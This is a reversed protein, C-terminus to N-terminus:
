AFPALDHATYTLHLVEARIFDAIKTKGLTQEFQEPKILPLQEVIYWNMSTSQTKQRTVFDFVFANLNTLLLPAFKVYEANSVTLEPMLLPLKNGAAVAPSITAIITSADTARAIDRFGIVWDRKDKQPIDSTAVWYQPTPHFDPKTKEADTTFDSNTAVKLNEDNTTVSAARHDYHYIMRGLYLPVAESEGKKWRNAGVPYCGQTQLDHQRMFLHSDNTMHFLTAYRVPWVKKQETRVSSTSARKAQGEVPEPRVTNLSLVPQRRYIATSIEADRANRFIPAAGTNPNVASFDAASLELIRSFKGTADIADLEEISHLYFACRSIAFSRAVGGFILTSFKSRSDVDSFFVKKNEFDFLATLRASSTNNNIPSTLTRFFTAPSLDTAISSPIILGVIGTPKVLTSAQEVLLKYLNVDGGSLLPYDGFNRAVKSAIEANEAAKCYELWLPDNNKELDAILKKRAAGTALAIEPRRETFWEVEQLKMVDWPLNGIIADFGGDADDMWVTPFALEWHLFHETDAKNLASQLTTHADKHRGAPLNITRQSLTGVSEILNKGYEQAPLGAWSADYAKLEAKGAWRKAQLFYLTRKIPALGFEAEDMM